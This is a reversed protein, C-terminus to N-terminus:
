IKQAIGPVIKQLDGQLFLDDDGLYVPEKSQNISIIKGNTNHEKYWALFGRDDQSLGVCIVINVEKLWEPQIEKKIAPGSMVFPKIGAKQQLSDFNETLVQCNKTLAIKTIARHAATPESEFAIKHFNKWATLIKEPDELMTHQFNEISEIGLSHLMDEMSLGKEASIGAGTYILINKEKILEALQLQDINQPHQNELKRPQSVLYEGTPTKQEDTEQSPEQDGVIYTFIKTKKGNIEKEEEKFKTKQEDTLNVPLKNYFEAKLYAKGNLYCFEYSRELNQKPGRGFTSTHHQELQDVEDPSIKEPGKLLLNQQPKEFVM